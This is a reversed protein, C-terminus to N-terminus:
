RASKGARATSSRNRVKTRFTVLAAPPRLLAQGSSTSPSGRKPTSAVGCAALLSRAKFGCHEWSAAPRVGSRPHGSGARPRRLQAFHAACLPAEYTRGRLRAYQGSRQACGARFATFPESTCRKAPLLSGRSMDLLGGRGKPAGRWPPSYALPSRPCSFSQKRRLSVHAFRINLPLPRLWM